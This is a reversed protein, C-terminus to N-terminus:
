LERSDAAGCAIAFESLKVSCNEARLRVSMAGRAEGGGDAAAGGGGDGGGGDGGMQGLVSVCRVIAPVSDFM